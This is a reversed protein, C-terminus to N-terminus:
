DDVEEKNIIICVEDNFVFDFENRIYKIWLKEFVMWYFFFMEIEVYIYIIGGVFKMFFDNCYFVKVRLEFRFLFFFVM